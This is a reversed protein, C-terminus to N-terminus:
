KVGLATSRRHVTRSYDTSLVYPTWPCGTSLVHGGRLTDLVHHAHFTVPRGYVTPPCDTAPPADTGPGQPADTSPGHYQGYAKQMISCAFTCNSLRTEAARHRQFTRHRCVSKPESGPSSAQLGLDRKDTLSTSGHHHNPAFGTYQGVENQYLLSSHLHTVSLPRDGNNHLWLRIAFSSCVIVFCWLFSLIEAFRIVTNQKKRLPFSPNCM